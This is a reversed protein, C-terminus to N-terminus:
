NKIIKLINKMIDPKIIIKISLVWINNFNFRKIKIADKETIIINDFNNPIDSKKFAYHDNFAITKELKIGLKTLSDFFRNPNAIACIAINKKNNFYDVSIKKNNNLSYINDYILHSNHLSINKNLKFKEYYENNNIKNNNITTLIISNSKKLRTLPERLKYQPLLFLKKHIDQAPFIVIEYDKFLKYHQLGDDSLIVQIDNYKKLLFNATKFKNNGVAIPVKTKHSILLPEDGYKNFDFSMNNVLLIDKSKRGFGKSIIGVKIGKKKLNNAINIIIPTKGTGGIHINGIVILPVKIKQLNFFNIKYLFIRLSVLIKFIISLPYLIISLYFKPNEWHSLIIKTIFM